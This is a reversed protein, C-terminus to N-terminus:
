KKGAASKEATERLREYTEIMIKRTHAGIHKREEKDLEGPNIPSGFDVYVDAAKVKPIHDEFIASMNYMTVPIIPCGTKDAIKFSGEHFPLMVEETKNRTGEPFICISYGEKVLDIASLITKLGQKIDDRDLFLNHLLKMWWSLFPIKAWEKKSIMATKGPYLYYSVIIDYFSRHNGIYQVPVDKPVNELGTVHVKVGSLFALFRFAPRMIGFTMRDRAKMSFLGVFCIILYYPTTILALLIIAIALIITRVM